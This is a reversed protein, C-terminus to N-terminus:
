PQGFEDASWLCPLADSEKLQFSIGKKWLEMDASHIPMRPTPLTDSPRKKALQKKKEKKREKYLNRQLSNKDEKGLSRPWSEKGRRMSQRMLPKGEKWGSGRQEHGEEGAPLIKEVASSFAEEWSDGETSAFDKVM